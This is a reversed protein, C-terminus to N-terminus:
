WLSGQSVKISSREKPIAASTKEPKNFLKEAYSVYDGLIAKTEEETLRRALNSTLFLAPNETQLYEGAHILKGNLVIDKLAKLLM